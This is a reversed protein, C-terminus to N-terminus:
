KKSSKQASQISKQAAARAKDRVEIAKKTREGRKQANDVNSIKHMKDHYKSEADAMKAQALDVKAARVRDAEDEQIIENIRM